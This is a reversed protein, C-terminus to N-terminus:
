TSKLNCIRCFFQFKPEFSVDKETSAGKSDRAHMKVRSLRYQYLRGIKELLSPQWFGPQSFEYWFFQGASLRTAFFSTAFTGM